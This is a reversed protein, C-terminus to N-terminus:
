PESGAAPPSHGYQYYSEIDARAVVGLVRKRGPAQYQYVYLAEAEANDFEQLAQELTAQYPLPAAERRHAPIALLDISVAAAPDQLEAAEREGELYRALDASLM